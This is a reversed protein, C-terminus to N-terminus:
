REKGLRRTLRKIREHAAAIERQWGAIWEENPSPKLVEQSIKDQHERAQRELGRIIKRLNKNKGM